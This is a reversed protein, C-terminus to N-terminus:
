GGSARRGEKGGGTQGGGKKKRGGQMVAMQGGCDQNPAGPGRSPPSMQKRCTKVLCCPQPGSSNVASSPVLDVTNICVYAAYHSSQGAYPPIRVQFHRCSPKPIPAPACAKKQAYRFLGPTNIDHVNPNRACLPNFSRHAGNQMAGRRWAVIADVIKACSDQLSTSIM